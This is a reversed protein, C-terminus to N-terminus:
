EGRGPEGGSLGHPNRALWVDNQWDKYGLLTGENREHEAKWGGPVLSGKLDIMADIRWSEEPLAFLVMRRGPLGLKDNRPTAHDRRIFRGAAVHRDFMRFYRQIIPHIAGEWDSFVALPKEGRLMMGLEFNTHVRYPLDFRDDEPPQEPMAM